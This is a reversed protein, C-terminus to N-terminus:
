IIKKEGLGIKEVLMETMLRAKDNDMQLWNDYWDDSSATLYRQVYENPLLDVLFKICAFTAKKYKLNKNTTKIFKKLSYETRDEQLSDQTEILHKFCVLYPEYHDFDYKNIGSCIIDVIGKTSEFNDKCIHSIIKAAALNNIGESIISELFLNALILDLDSSTLSILPGDQVSPSNVEPNESGINEDLKQMSCSCLLLQVTGLIYILYEKTDKEDKQEDENEKPECYPSNEGLYLHILIPILDRNIM